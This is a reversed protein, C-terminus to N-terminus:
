SAPQERLGKLIELRRQDIAEGIAKGAIGQRIFEKPAVADLQRFANRLWEGSAYPKDQFDKRGRADSECSLLFLGFREPRRFADLNQLLKLTAKPRLGPAKHCLLHYRTVLLALDRFHNPVKLRACVNEVLPVGGEEHGIHRPLIDAPTVGKGLDHMLVAFTIQAKQEATLRDLTAAIDLSMLLHVGTDIEPHYDARQPVGFLADVEPLLVELAGCDRLVQIFIAFDPGLLTKNIEQWVREASLQQLEGSQSLQQMLTLTGPAITFGLSHYRAAFRAVRLVRLPDEIFAASVHRLTKAALDRQGGYPDILNGDGDEAMANITLDRRLLDEELTVDPSTYFTFGGYGHGAKKERRALAYEEGTEPHLFVPFDKGAPHFGLETMQEPSSGVVVYDRETFPFKLLKDRVAGGVLYYEFPYQM